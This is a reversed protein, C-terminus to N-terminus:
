SRPEPIATRVMASSRRRWTTRAYGISPLHLSARATPALRGTVRPSWVGTRPRHGAASPGTGPRHSALRPGLGKAAAHPQEHIPRAGSHGAARPQPAHAADVKGADAGRDQHVAQVLRPSPSHASLPKASGSARDRPTAPYPWSRIARGHLRGPRATAPPWRGPGPRLQSSPSPMRARVPRPPAHPRQWRGSPRARAACEGRQVTHRARSDPM